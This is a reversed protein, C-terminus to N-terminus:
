NGALNQTCVCERCRRRRKYLRKEAPSHQHFEASRAPFLLPPEPHPFTPASGDITLRQTPRTPGDALPIHVEAFHVNPRSQSPFIKNRSKGEQIRVVTWILIQTSEELFDSFLIEKFFIPGVDMKCFDLLIVRARFWFLGPVLPHLRLGSPSATLDAETCRRYGLRGAEPPIRGHATKGLPEAWSGDGNARSHCPSLSRRECTTSIRSTIRTLSRDNV